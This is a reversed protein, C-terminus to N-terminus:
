SLGAVRYLSRSEPESLVTATVLPEISVACAPSELPFAKKCSFLGLAVGSPTRRGKAEPRLKQFAVVFNQPCMQSLPSLRAEGLMSLVHLDGYVSM